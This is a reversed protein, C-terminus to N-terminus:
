YSHHLIILVVPKVQIWRVCNLVFKMQIDDIITPISAEPTLSDLNSTDEKTFVSSFYKNFLSAKASDKTVTTGSNHLAPIPDRYGKVSNIWRWFQKPNAYSQKCM